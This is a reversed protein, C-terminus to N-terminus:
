STMGGKFQMSDRNNNATEDGSFHQYRKSDLQM